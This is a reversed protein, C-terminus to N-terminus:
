PVAVFTHHGGEFGERLSKLVCYVLKRTEQWLSTEPGWVISGGTEFMFQSVSEERVINPLM